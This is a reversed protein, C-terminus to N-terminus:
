YLSSSSLWSPDCYSNGTISHFWLLLFLWLVPVFGSMYIRPIFSWFISGCLDVTLQNKVFIIFVANFFLCGRRCITSPFHLAVHLLISVLNGDRVRCLFWSWVLFCFFGLIGVKSVPFFCLCWAHLFWALWYIFSCVTRLLHFAFPWYAYLIAWGWQGDCFHWDFSSQAKIKGWDFHRDNIFCISSLVCIVPFGHVGSAPIYVTGVEQFYSHVNKLVNFASRAYLGTISSWTFMNRVYQCISAWRLVLWLM